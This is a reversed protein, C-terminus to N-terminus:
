ADTSVMSGVVSLVSGSVPLVSGITSVGCATASSLDASGGVAEVSSVSLGAASYAGM